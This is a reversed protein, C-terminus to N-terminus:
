AATAVIPEYANQTVIRKGGPSAIFSRARWVPYTQNNNSLALFAGEYGYVQESTFWDGHMDAPVCLLKVAKSSSRLKQLLSRAFKVEQIDRCVLVGIALEGSECYPLERPESGVGESRDDSRIKLYDVRNRGGVLVQARMNRGDSTAAVIVTEPYQDTAAVLEAATTGEPLVLVDPALCETNATAVACVINM